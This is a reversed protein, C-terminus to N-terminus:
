CGALWGGMRGGPGTDGAARGVAGTGAAAAGM